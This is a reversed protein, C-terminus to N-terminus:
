VGSVTYKYHIANGEAPCQSNETPRSCTSMCIRVMCQLDQIQEKEPTDSDTFAMYSISISETSNEIGPSVNLANSYCGGAIIKVSLSGTIVECEHFYFTVGSLINELNWTVTAHILSGVKMVESEDEGSNFTM